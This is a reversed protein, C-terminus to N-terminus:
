ITVLNRESVRKAFPKTSAKWEGRIQMLVDGLSLDEYNSSAHRLGSVARAPHLLPLEDPEYGSPRHNSDM